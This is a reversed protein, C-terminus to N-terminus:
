FAGFPDLQINNAKGNQHEISLPATQQPILFQQQQQQQSVAGQMGMMGMPVMGSQSGAMMPTRM